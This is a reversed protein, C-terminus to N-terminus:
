GCDQIFSSVAPARVICIVGLITAATYGLSELVALFICFKLGGDNFKSLHSVRAWGDFCGAMLISFLFWLVCLVGQCIRYWLIYNSEPPRKCVALYGRYFTFGAAPIFVFLDVRSPAPTTSLFSYFVDIGNSYKSM